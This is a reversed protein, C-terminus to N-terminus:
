RRGREQSALARRMLEEDTVDRMAPFQHRLAELVMGAAVAAEAAESPGSRVRESESSRELVGYTEEIRRRLWESVAEEVAASRTLGGSKAQGDLARALVPDIAVTIRSKTRGGAM